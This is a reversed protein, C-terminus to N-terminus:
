SVARILNMKALWALARFVAAKRDAEVNGVLEAASHAADKLGSLVSRLENDSPIIIRSSIACTNSIINVYDIQRLCM